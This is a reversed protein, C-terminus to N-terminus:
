LAVNCREITPLDPAGPLILRVIHNEALTVSGEEYLNRCVLLITTDFTTLNILQQRLASLAPSVVIHRHVRTPDVPLLLLYRLILLRIEKPLDLLRLPRAPIKPILRSM